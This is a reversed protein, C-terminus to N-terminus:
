RPLQNATFQCNKGTGGKYKRLALQLGEGGGDRRSVQFGHSGGLIGRM